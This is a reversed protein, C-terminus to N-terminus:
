PPCPKMVVGIIGLKGNPRPSQDVGGARPNFAQQMAGQGQPVRFANAQDLAAMDDHGTYVHAPM